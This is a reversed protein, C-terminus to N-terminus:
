SKLARYADRLLGPAEHRHASSMPRWIRAGVARDYRIFTALSVHDGAAQVVLHVTLHWSRAELRLWDGGRDAIEWGAVRDPASELRLQLLGRWIFQATRGGVVEFMARAWQEPSTGPAVGRMTFVDVYGPEVMPSLAHLEAPIPHRQVVTPLPEERVAQREM